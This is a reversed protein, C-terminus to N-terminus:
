APILRDTGAAFSAGRALKKFRGAASVREKMSAGERTGRPPSAVARPSVPARWTTIGFAPCEVRVGRRPSFRLTSTEVFEPVRVPTRASAAALASM